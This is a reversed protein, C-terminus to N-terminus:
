IFFTFVLMDVTTEWTSSSKTTCFIKLTSQMMYDVHTGVWIILVLCAVTYEVKLLLGVHTDTCQHTPGNIHKVKGEM